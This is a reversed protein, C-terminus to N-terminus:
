VKANAILYLSIWYVFEAFDSQLVAETKTKGPQDFWGQEM